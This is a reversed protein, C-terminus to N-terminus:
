GRHAELPFRIDARPMDPGVFVMTANACPCPDMAFHAYDLTRHGRCDPCYNFADSFASPAWHAPFRFSLWGGCPSLAFKDMRDFLDCAAHWDGDTLLDALCALNDGYLSFQAFTWASGGHRALSFCPWGLANLAEVLARRRSHRWFGFAYEAAARYRATSERDCGFTFDGRGCVWFKPHPSSLVSSYFTPRIIVPQPDISEDAHILRIM